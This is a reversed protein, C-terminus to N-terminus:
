QQSLLLNNNIILIKLTNKKNVSYGNNKCVDVCLQIFDELMMDGKAQNADRCSLGMNKLTNKGGKAVPTKHDLHYSRAEEINIARGTLYCTKNDNIKKLAANVDFQGTTKGRGRSTGASERKYNRVRNAIYKYIKERVVSSARKRNTKTRNYQKEKQGDGCHYSITGKSCGLIKKIETYTKNESRLRLIEEKM